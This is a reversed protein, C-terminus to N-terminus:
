ALSLEAVLAITNKAGDKKDFNLGVHGTTPPPLTANRVEMFGVEDTEIM